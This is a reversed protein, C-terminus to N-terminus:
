REKRRLLEANVEGSPVATTSLLRVLRRVATCAIPVAAAVDSTLETGFDVSGVDVSVLFAAPEQGFLEAASGLLAEPQQAHDAVAIAPGRAVRRCSVRGATAGSGADVFIVANAHAIDEALEPVLQHRRLIRANPLMTELQEGIAWGVGDDGRLPNGYTVVLIM